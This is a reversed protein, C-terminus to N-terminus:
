SGSRNKTLADAMAKAYRYAGSSYVACRGIVGADDGVVSPCFHIGDTSRVVNSHVGGVVPGACPEHELCPLTDTYTHRPLEVSAGADVYTVHAPDAAAIEEYQMNLKQWGPVSQQARTIPAGILFVHSGGATFIEIAKMTDARYKEYYRSSYVKYGDMCPTLNNGSFELEVAEPHYEAEVEAMRTLWDCIATGALADYTHAVAGAARALEDYYPQAEASLSDGFLAAQRADAHDTSRGSTSCSALLLALAGIFLLGISGRQVRQKM